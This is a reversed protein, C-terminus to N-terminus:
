NPPSPTNSSSVHAATENQLIVKGDGIMGDLREIAVGLNDVVHGVKDGVEMIPNVAEGFFILFVTIIMVLAIYPIAQAILDRLSKKKYEDSADLENIMLARQNTTFPQFIDKAFPIKTKADKASKIYEQIKEQNEEKYKEYDFSDVIPILVGDETLYYEVQKKGKHTIKIASSPPMPEKRKLKLFKYWKNGKKDVWVKARDYMIVKNSNEDVIERITVKIKFSLVYWIMAIVAIGCGSILIWLVTTFLTDMVSVWGM